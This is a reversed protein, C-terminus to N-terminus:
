NECPTQQFHNLADTDRWRFYDHIASTVFRKAETIADALDLGNALNAAIAASYTCGTGHTNVGEVYPADFSQPTGDPTALVDTADAGQLHGGKALVNTKFKGALFIAATTLSEPSDIEGCGLAIAEDVNPTLLTAKPLLETTYVDLASDKTLSDGSTAVMVPDIVLPPHDFSELWDITAQVHVSSYLMGTKIAAIPFADHLLELQETLVAAPIPVISGVTGPVEAVVCTVATLGFVCHESFTKLDAQIGAGASCDSGAITLVVPPSEPM